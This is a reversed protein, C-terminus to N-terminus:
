CGSWRQFCIRAFHDYVKAITLDVKVRLRLAEMLRLGSGYLLNAILWYVGKLNSLVKAVEEKSLVVPIREPMKAKVFHNIQLDDRHL